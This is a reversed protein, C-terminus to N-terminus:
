AWRLRFWESTSAGARLVTPSRNFVDPADTQPEVCLAHDPETYVVWHDCSSSLELEVAGPWTIRPNEEPSLFCNDWPGPPMAVLTGTPIGADDLEYMAPQGFSLVAEVPEPGDGLYRAFWPHWGIMVPMDQDAEVTMTILLETDSLEFRQTARGGLPWPSRLDCALTQADVISWASTFGIGHASHPPLNRPLEYTIGGFEFIGERVRGAWPVMPYSGWQLGGLAAEIVLLEYGEVQLSALRGGNHADVVVSSGGGELRLESM